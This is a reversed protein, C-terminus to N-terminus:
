QHETSASSSARSVSRCPPHIINHEREEISPRYLFSERRPQATILLHSQPHNATTSFDTPRQRFFQPLNIDRKLSAFSPRKKTM